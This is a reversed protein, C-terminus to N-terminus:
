HCYGYLFMRRTTWKHTHLAPVYLNSYRYNMKQSNYNLFVVIVEHVLPFPEFVIYPLSLQPYVIFAAALTHVIM